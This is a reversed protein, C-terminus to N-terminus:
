ENTFQSYGGCLLGVAYGLSHTIKASTLASELLSIKGLILLPILLTMIVGGFAYASQEFALENRRWDSIALMTYMPIIAYVAGSFGLTSAEGALGDVIVQSYTPVYATILVFVAYRSKLWQKELQTGYLLLLGMNPLFHAIFAGHSFPGTVLGPTFKFQTVFWYEFAETSIDAVYIELILIISNLLIFLFTVWRQKMYNVATSM